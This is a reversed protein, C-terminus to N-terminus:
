AWHVRFQVRMVAHLESLTIRAIPTAVMTARATDWVAHPTLGQSFRAKWLTFRLAICRRRRDLLVM